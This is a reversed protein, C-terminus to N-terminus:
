MSILRGAHGEVTSTPFSPIEDYPLSHSIDIHNVLGGLGTGLIIGVEPRFDVKQQIFEASAKIKNIM